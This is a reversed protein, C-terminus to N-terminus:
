IINEALCLKLHTFICISYNPPLRTLHNPVNFIQGIQHFVLFCQLNANIQSFYVVFYGSGLRHGLDVLQQPYLFVLDSDCM